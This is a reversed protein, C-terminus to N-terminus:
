RDVGVVDLLSAPRSARIWLDHPRRATLKDPVRQPRRCGAHLGSRHEVDRHADSRSISPKDSGLPSRETSRSTPGWATRRLHEESRRHCAARTPSSCDTRARPPPGGVIPEQLRTGATATRFVYFRLPPQLVYQTRTATSRSRAHSQSHRALPTSVRRYPASDADAAWARQRHPRYPPSQTEYIQAVARLQRRAPTRRHRPARRRIRWRVNHLIMQQFPLVRARGGREHTSFINRLRRRRPSTGSMTPRPARSPALSDAASVRAPGTSRWRGNFGYPKTGTSWAAPPSRAHRSLAFVPAPIWPARDSHGRPVDRQHGLGAAGAPPVPSLPFEYHQAGKM